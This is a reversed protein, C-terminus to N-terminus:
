FKLELIIVNNGKSGKGGGIEGTSEGELGEHEWNM